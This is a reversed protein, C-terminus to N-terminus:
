IRIFFTGLFREIGKRVLMVAIAALLLSTIKSLAKSGAEGLIKILIQSSLFIIAALFINIIISILTPFIGYEGILILSTTLVAPGVILPTGLPVVGVQSPLYSKKSFSIIDNIAICFLIVGGAIMFDGVSIGLFKFIAKGLFIFGIALSLATIISQVIVQMKKEKKFDKTFSVFIPLIGIADVAVFIPIFALFINKLM